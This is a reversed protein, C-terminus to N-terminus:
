RRVQRLAGLIISGARAALGEGGASGGGVEEEV